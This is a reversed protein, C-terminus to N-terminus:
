EGMGDKWREGDGNKRRKVGREGDDEDEDTTREDRVECNGENMRWEDTRRWRENM